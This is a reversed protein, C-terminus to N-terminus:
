AMVSAVPKLGPLRALDDRLAPVEVLRNLVAHTRGLWHAPPADIGAFTTIRSSAGIQRAPKGNEPTTTFALNFWRPGLWEPLVTSGSAASIREDGMTLVLDLGPLMAAQLLALDAPCVANGDHAAATERFPWSQAKHGNAALIM